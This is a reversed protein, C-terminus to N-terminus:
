KKNSVPIYKDSGFKYTQRLSTSKLTTIEKELCDIKQIQKAYEEHINERSSDKLKTSDANKSGQLKQTLWARIGDSVASEGGRHIQLSDAKEIKSVDKQHYKQMYAAEREEVLKQLVSPDNIWKKLTQLAQMKAKLLDDYDNLDVSDMQQRAYSRIREKATNIFTQSSYQFNLNTINRLYNNNGLRTTFYVRLPYQDKITVDLFTTVTHQQLNDGIYPTDIRSQYFYDYAINGHIVVLPTRTPISVQGNDAVLEPKVMIATDVFVFEVLKCKAPRIERLVCTSPLRKADRTNSVIYIRGKRAPMSDTRQLAAANSKTYNKKYNRKSLSNASTSRTILRNGQIISNAKAAMSKVPVEISNNNLTQAQIKGVCFLLSICTIAYLSLRM